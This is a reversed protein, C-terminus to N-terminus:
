KLTTKNKSVVFSLPLNLKLTFNRGMNYVGQRGTAINMPGYKLRSLHSQYSIDAINSVLFAVNLMTNGKGNALNFGIGGHLLTYGPTETETDFGTFPKSQRFINEVEFKIYANKFGPVMDLDARLETLLKPAPM